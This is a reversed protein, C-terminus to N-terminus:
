RHCYLINQLVPRLYTVIIFSFLRGLVKLRYDPRIALRYQLRREGSDNKVLFESSECQLNILVSYKGCIFLTLISLMIVKAVLYM